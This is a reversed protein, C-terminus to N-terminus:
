KDSCNGANELVSFYDLLPEIINKIAVLILFLICFSVNLHNTNYLLKTGLYNIARKM